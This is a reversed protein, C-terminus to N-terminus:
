RRRPTETRTFPRPTEPKPNLPKPNLPKYFNNLTQTGILKSRFNQGFRESRFTKVSVNQGFRKSRFRKRKRVMNQSQHAPPHPPQTPSLRAQQGPGPRPRSSPTSSAIALLSSGSSPALPSEARRIIFQRPPEQVPRSAAARRRSAGFLALYSAEGPLADPPGSRHEAFIVRLKIKTLSDLDRESLRHHLCLRARGPAAGTHRLVMDPQDHGLSSSQKPKTKRRLMVPLAAIGNAFGSYNDPPNGRAAWM